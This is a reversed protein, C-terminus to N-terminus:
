LLLLYLFLKGFVQVGTSAEMSFFLPNQKIVRYLTEGGHKCTIAANVASYVETGWHAPISRVKKNLM